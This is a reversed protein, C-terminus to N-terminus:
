QSNNTYETREIHNGARPKSMKLVAWAILAVVVMAIVTAPEFIALNETGQTTSRSFIGVFAVVFFHTFAYIGQVFGNEPNAGFLKFVLRFLLTIEIAGFLISVIRQITDGQQSTNLTETQKIIEEM